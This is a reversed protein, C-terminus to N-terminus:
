IKSDIKADDNHLCTNTKHKTTLVKKEQHSVKFWNQEASM